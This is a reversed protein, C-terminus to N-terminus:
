IIKKYIRWKWIYNQFEQKRKDPLKLGIKKMEKIAWQTAYYEEECRKMGKINTKIHGIEHLLDFIFITDPYLFGKSYLYIIKEPVYCYSVPENSFRFEIENKYENLINNIIENLTKKM